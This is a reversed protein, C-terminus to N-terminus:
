KLDESFPGSENETLLVKNIDLDNNLTADHWMSMSYDAYAALPSLKERKRERQRIEAVNSLGEAWPKWQTTLLAKVNAGIKFTSKYKSDNLPIWKVAMIWRWNKHWRWDKHTIQSCYFLIVNVIVKKNCKKLFMWTQGRALVATEKCLRWTEWAILWKRKLSLPSTSTTLM